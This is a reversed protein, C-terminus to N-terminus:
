TAFEYAANHDAFDFVTEGGITFRYRVTRKISEKITRSMKGHEPALLEHTNRTDLAEAELRWKGQVIVLRGSNLEKVRAGLYTALRYECGGSSIVCVTGNFRLGLYPIVGASMFISIDPVASQSLFYKSPFSHGRDGEIYGVGGDFNYSRGNIIVQGQISHRMSVVSHRCEMFPLWRFWGMADYKLPTLEGFSISGQVSLGPREINLVAGDRNVSSNGVFVAFDRRDIFYDEYAYEAYYSSDATIIQIFSSGEGRGRSSGFIFAAQDGESSCRVYYGEFYSM